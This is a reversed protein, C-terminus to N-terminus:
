PHSGAASHNCETHCTVEVWRDSHCCKSLVGTICCWHNSKIINTCFSLFPRSMSPSVRRCINEMVLNNCLLRNNLRGRTMRGPEAGEVFGDADERVHDCEVVHGAVGHLGCRLTVVFDGPSHDPFVHSFDQVFDAGHLELYKAKERTMKKNAQVYNIPKTLEVYKEPGQWLRHLSSWLQSQEAAPPYASSRGSSPPIIWFARQLVKTSHKLACELDQTRFKLREWWLEKM